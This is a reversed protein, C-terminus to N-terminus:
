VGRTATKKLKVIWYYLGWGMISVAPNFVLMIEHDRYMRSLRKKIEAKKIGTKKEIYALNFVEPYVQYFSKAVQFAVFDNSDTSVVGPELYGYGKPPFNYDRLYAQQEDTGIRYQKQKEM